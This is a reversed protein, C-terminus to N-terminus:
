PSWSSVVFSRWPVSSPESIQRRLEPVAPVYEPPYLFYVWERFADATASYPVTAMTGGPHRSSVPIPESNSADSLRNTPATPGLLLPLDM